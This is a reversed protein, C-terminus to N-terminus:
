FCGDVCKGHLGMWGPDQRGLPSPCSGWSLFLPGLSFEERGQEVTQNTGTGINNWKDWKVFHRQSLPQYNIYLSPLSCETMEGPLRGSFPVSGDVRECVRMLWQKDWWDISKTHAKLNHQTHIYRKEGKNKYPGPSHALTHDKFYVVSHWSWWTSPLQEEFVQLVNLTQM